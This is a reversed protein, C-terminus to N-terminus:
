FVSRCRDALEEDKMEDCVTVRAREGKWHVAWYSGMGSLCSNLYGDPLMQCYSGAKSIDETHYKVARSGLGMTCMERGGEPVETTCWEAVQSWGDPNQGLILTPSYFWCASGYPERVEPCIRLADAPKKAGAGAHGAAADANWLQMMLGEACRAGQTLGSLQDCLDMSQEVDGKTAFMVGHGVGHLCSGDQDPACISWIDQSIDGSEGLKAEVAGHMFGGGCVDNRANLVKSTDGDALRLAEHGLDHAVAHCVGPYAPNSMIAIDLDALAAEAGKSKLVALARDHLTTYADVNGSTGSVAVVHGSSEESPHGPDATAAQIPQSHAATDAARTAATGPDSVHGGSAFALSAGLVLAGAAAVAPVASRLNWPM